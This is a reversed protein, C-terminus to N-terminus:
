GCLTVLTGKHLKRRRHKMCVIVLHYRRTYEYLNNRDRGAAVQQQEGISLGDVCVIIRTSYFFLYIIKKKKDSFVAFRGGGYGSRIGIIIGYVPNRGAPVQFRNRPLAITIIIEENKHSKRLVVLPVTERGYLPGLRRRPIQRIGGGGVLNRVASRRIIALRRRKVASRSKAYLVAVACSGIDCTMQTSVTVRFRNEGGLAIGYSFPQKPTHEFGFTISIKRSNLGISQFEVTVRHAEVLVANMSVDTQNKVIVLKTM